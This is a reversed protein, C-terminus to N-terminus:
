TLVERLGSRGRALHRKVAGESIGMRRAVEDVSLDEWYTLFVAARQRVSLGNLAAGVLPDSTLEGAPVGSSWAVERGHRRLRGRVHMRAANTTSRFLYARPERVTSWTEDGRRLLSVFMDAVLDPADSPGVLASAYRVLDDSFKM